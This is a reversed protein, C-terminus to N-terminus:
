GRTGPRAALAHDVANIFAKAMREYTFAAVDQRGADGFRAALDPDEIMRRLAAALADTDREPVVFGNRGDRVLGGAAAGVGDSAVVPVGAHFAENVVVGWPEKDLETTVSPLVLCRARSLDIPLEEQSHYGALEIGDRGQIRQRVWGELAGGGVMRLRAGTDALQDFADLLYPVGKYQEFQGVFLVEASDRSRLPHISEFRTPDVAQGAVFVKEPAVGPTDLIFRRVHEGYAVIAEAGRYIGALVPKSARHFSTKPHMWIGQWLVFGVGRAKAAGYVMPLMLKGNTSKIVADYQGGLIRAAIGPMISQGALRYRPLDVRRYNGGPAHPINPNSWRERQDSFFYFDADIRDAIEEYLRRRYHTPFYDIFAIRPVTDGLLLTTM